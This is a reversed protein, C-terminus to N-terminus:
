AGFLRSNFPYETTEVISIKGADPHLPNILYNSAKPMVVSPVRIVAFRNAQMTQSGATRSRSVDTQWGDELNLEGISLTDPVDIEILQYFDPVTERTAHVLIELLSTSPHDACYVILTGRAHWRGSGILGGRGSLDAFKSIRWIRV